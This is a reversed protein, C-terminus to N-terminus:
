NNDWDGVIPLRLSPRPGQRFVISWAGTSNTNRLYFWGQSQDYLGITDVGDGDWDGAIPIRHSNKPGQNFVYDWPGSYHKNSLYFRGQQQDYLGITDVGDGDWDGAIPLRTTNKAGQNFVLAWKDTFHDNHLYFRGQQQDYLGITDVGDQDWDGAIPLRLSPQPGQRFVEDWPGSQFANRLYFWGQNKDYLGITDIGDGNWDGTIPLRSTNRSGQNFVHDWEHPQNVNLLYFRGQMPDFLGVGEKLRLKPVFIPEGDYAADFTLRTVENTVVNVLYLDVNGNEEREVIVHTDDIWVPNLGENSIVQKKGMRDIIRIGPGYIIQQCDSSFKPGQGFPSDNPLTTISGTSVNVVNITTAWEYVIENQEKCWDASSARINYINNGFGSGQGTSTPAVILQTLTGNRTTIASFYAGNSNLSAGWDESSGFPDTTLQHIVGTIRDFLYIRSQTGAPYQNADFIIYRGNTSASPRHPEIIVADTLPYPPSLPLLDKDLPLFYLRAVGNDRKSIFAIGQSRNFYIQEYNLASVNLTYAFEYVFNSTMSVAFFLNITENAEPNNNALNVTVQARRIMVSPTNSETLTLMLDARKEYGPLPFKSFYGVVNQPQDVILETGVPIDESLNERIVQELSVPPTLFDHAVEGNPFRIFATRGDHFAERAKLTPGRMFNHGAFGLLRSQQEQIMRLAHASRFELTPKEDERDWKLTLEIVGEGVQSHINYVVILTDNDQVSIDVEDIHQRFDENSSFPEGIFGFRTAAGMYLPEDAGSINIFGDSTLVVVVPYGTSAQHTFWLRNIRKGSKYHDDLLQQSIQSSGVNCPEFEWLVNNIYATDFNMFPRGGSRAEISWGDENNLIKPCGLNNIENFPQMDLETEVNYLPDDLYSQMALSLLNAKRAEYAENLTAGQTPSSLFGILLLAICFSAFHVIYQQLSVFRHLSILKEM